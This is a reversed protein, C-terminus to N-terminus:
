TYVMEAGLYPELTVTAVNTKSADSGGEWKTVLATSSWYHTDDVYHKFAISTGGDYAAYLLAQGTEQLDETLEVTVTWEKYNLLTSPAEDQLHIIKETNWNQPLKVNRVGLVPTDAGGVKFNGSKGPVPTLSM